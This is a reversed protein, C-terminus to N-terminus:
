VQDTLMCTSVTKGQFIVVAILASIPQIIYGEIGLYTM